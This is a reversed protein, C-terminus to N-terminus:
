HKVRGRSEIGDMFTKAIYEMLVLATMEPKGKAEMWVINDSADLDCAFKLTGVVRPEQWVNFGPWTPIGEYMTVVLRAEGIVNNYPGSWLVTMCIPPKNYGREHALLVGRGARFVKLPVSKEATAWSELQDSIEQVEALARRAGSGDFGEKFKDQAIQLEVERALRAARQGLTEPTANGGREQVLQEIVSALGAEGYRGLNAWIRTRPFWRPPVASTELNVLLTFDYGEDYARGRIATEEIRTWTTKGWEERYLIVIVRSESGFVSSFAEEGDRGALAKQQESFVFTRMRAQLLDSIRLALSEDEKLFSIAFDYKFGEPPGSM